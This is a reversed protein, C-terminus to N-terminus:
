FRNKWERLATFVALDNEPLVGNERRLTERVSRSATRLFPNVKREHALSVPLTCRRQQAAEMAAIVAANDPEAAHAFRLNSLTYEHAPYFLTNEPLTDFRRLSHFLQEMTGTFVRGCGASFLTDGCFVHRQGQHALLYAMHTDTHGPVYWVTIDAGGFTFAAGEAATQNASAIDPAGWIQVFPFAAQLAAIGGTHDAHHHTVWIQALNLGRRRLFDAIGDAEGPDVVAADRGNEICWIYNDNLAPVAHITFDTTTM